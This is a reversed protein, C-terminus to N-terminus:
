VSTFLVGLEAPCREAAHPSAAWSHWPRSGGETKRPLQLVATCTYGTM